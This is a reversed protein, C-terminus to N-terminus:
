WPGCDCIVQRSEVDYQCNRREGPACPAEPPRTAPRYNLGWIQNQSDGWPWQLLQVSNQQSADLVSLYQGSHRARLRYGTTNPVVEMAWQQAWEGSCPWLWIPAGAEQSGWRVDLCLGKQASNAPGSPDATEIVYYDTNGVKEQWRLLWGQNAGDHCDFQEVVTQEVANHAPIDVCKGSHMATVLQPVPYRRKLGELELPTFQETPGPEGGAWLKMTRCGTIQCGLWLEPKMFDIGDYHMVSWPEYPLGLTTNEETKRDFARISSDRVNELFIQLYTDRDPRQHEHLLGMVHGMEHLIHDFTNCGHCITLDQRGGTKGTHALSEYESFLWDWDLGNETVAVYDVDWSQKPEWRCTTVINIYNVVEHFMDRVQDTAFNDTYPVRCGGDGNTMPRRPWHQGALAHFAEADGSLGTLGALAVGFALANRMLQNRM